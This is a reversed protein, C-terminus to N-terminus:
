SLVDIVSSESKRVKSATREVFTSHAAKRYRPIPVSNGALGKPQSLVINMISKVKITSPKRKTSLVSMMPYNEMIVRGDKQGNVRKFKLYYQGILNRQTKGYNRQLIEYINKNRVQIEM